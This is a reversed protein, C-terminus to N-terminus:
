VGPAGSARGGPVLRPRGDTGDGRWCCRRPSIPVWGFMRRFSSSMSTCTGSQRCCGGAYLRSRKIRGQEASQAADRELTAALQDLLDPLTGPMAAM